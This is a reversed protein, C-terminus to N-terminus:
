MNALGTGLSSKKELQSRNELPECYGFLAVVQSSLEFVYMHPHYKVKLSYCDVRSRWLSMTMEYCFAKQRGGLRATRVGNLPDSNLSPM